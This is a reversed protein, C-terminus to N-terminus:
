SRGALFGWGMGALFGGLHAGYATTQPWWLAEAAILLLLLPVLQWARVPIPVVLLWLTLRCRPSLTAAAGLCGALVASAGVCGMRVSLRPDFALSLLFGLAGALATLLALRFFAATGLLRELATGTVALGFANAALHLWSGHLFVYTVPQWFAGDRVGEATLSFLARFAGGGAPHSLMPAALGVAFFLFCAVVVALTAAAPRIETGRLIM